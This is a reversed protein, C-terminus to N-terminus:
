VKTAPTDKEGKTRTEGPNDKLGTKTQHHENSLTQRSIFASVFIGAAAMAVYLIWLKRLSTAFASRAVERQASPLQRVIMVNAGASGGSLLDATSTGLAQRLAPLEHQMANQFVVGGIVVSISTALNRTFGLTATATAIDRPEILTQLALLPGQFNPGIGIGAVIQYLIIKAWSSRTDLDVFLGFGLTMTIMGVWISELYRGTKRVIVGSFAASIALTFAFPMLYVGSLLPKAGIVAQFHLPLYYSGGIFVFGHCFCTLLSACNSRRSFLRLPIIPYKAFRWEIIIFLVATFLGFIILCIVKSSSWPFTVGGFEMGLLFMLTGAVITLSGFWDIAKLGEVLSTKPTELKLFFFFIMFAVGTCPLNIYFCWRWSAKETFIGGLIPGIGGAFAWTMGVLAFYMARKRMSFLDSICISVLIILGGGGVGQVARGAILMNISTAAGSVASGLFFIAAATLLVPRRGWIDSFKGWSPTSAANALLYASGIWTYGASSHFHESITPVATTIITQDLAALLVAMCLAGMIVATQMKSRQKVDEGSRSALTEESVESSEEDRPPNSPPNAVVGAEAVAAGEGVVRSPIEEKETTM